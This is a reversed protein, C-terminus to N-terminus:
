FPLSRGQPCDYFRATQGSSCAKRSSSSCPVVPTVQEEPPVQTQSVTPTSEPLPQNATPAESCAALFLFLFTVPLWRTVRNVPKSM